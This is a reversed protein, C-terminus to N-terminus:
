RQKGPPNNPKRFRPTANEVVPHVRKRLENVAEMATGGPSGPVAPHAMPPGHYIPRFHTDSQPLPPNKASACRPAAV